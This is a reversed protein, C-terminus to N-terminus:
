RIPHTWNWAVDSFHLGAGNVTRGTSRGGFDVWVERIAGGFVGSGDQPIPNPEQFAGQNSGFCTAQQWESLSHNPSLFHAYRSRRM